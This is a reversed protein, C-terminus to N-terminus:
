IEIRDFRDKGGMIAVRPGRDAVEHFADLVKAV